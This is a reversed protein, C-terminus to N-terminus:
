NIALFIYAASMAGIAVWAADTLRGLRDTWTPRPRCVGCLRM